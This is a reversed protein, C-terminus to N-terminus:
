SGGSDRRHFADGVTIVSDIIRRVQADTLDPYIPLSLASEFVEMSVPFDQPRYGYRERYYSMIHLPIYHVSAGIGRQQLREIFSDRDISLRDTRLQLVYLHWAHEDTYAPARLFSCGAFADTYRRAIQQRKHLFDDAKRLQVRGIAAAMDPLNYKYGAEIVDYRWSAKQATYRKWVERDIGHLRMVGIRRAIEPDETVVMGGEGTTITKTAYFSYVGIDGICGIFGDPTRVPLAHAADEVVSAGYRRAIGVIQDMRCPRGGLHVPIVARIDPDKRFEKEIGDPDITLSDRDIDVFVPDAGLYRIVEASSTFTYPTTIVRDGPGIGLAELALHLGATASNVALAHSAGTYAAFEKEFATTQGATTLWGSRLVELVAEEEERGISPRAFPIPDQRIDEISRNM